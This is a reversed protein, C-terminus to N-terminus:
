FRYIWIVIASGVVFLLMGGRTMIRALRANEMQRAMLINIAGIVAALMPLWGYEQM